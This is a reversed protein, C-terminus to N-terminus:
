KVEGTKDLLATITALLEKLGCNCTHDEYVACSDRHEVRERAKELGQTLSQTLKLRYVYAAEVVKLREIEAKAETLAQQLDQIQEDKGKFNQTHSSM